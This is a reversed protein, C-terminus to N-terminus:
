KSGEKYEIIVFAKSEQDFALTDVRKNKIVFESKVLMLGMIQPLNAEFINQLEREKKFPTEKLPELNKSIKYLSPQM